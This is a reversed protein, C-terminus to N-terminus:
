RQWFARTFLVLVTFIELRGVLMTASLVWLGPESVARYNELAGVEGLGPGLTTLMAAAASVATVPDQGTAALLLSAVGAVTMYLVFYGFVARRVDESFVRRPLRLVTVASPRLQRQMEHLAGKAVLMVRIVKLGGATSGACGGILMLIIIGFRAFHNWLDFDTTTYGTTTVVSAINFMSRRLAESLSGENGATLLSITALVVAGGLILLFARVEALQPLLPGGRLLRWYVAFNIGGAIMFAIVVFELAMSDFAAISADKTSFGGTSLTTFIHNIADFPGMGAIMYALFGLVTLGLYISWLIKATDAIRPTLRETTPGSTEAYFVRQSALGTAPAVAVFLVIIGLGGFWQMLSRWLLLAHPQGEIADFLTAGTTTFGSMAEFFSTTFSPLTGSALFPISGFLAALLWAVTVAFFTDRARLPGPQLRRGAAIGLLGLPIAVGATAAFPGGSGDGYYLAVALCVAMGLGVALVAGALVPLV